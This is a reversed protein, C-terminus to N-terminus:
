EKCVEFKVPLSRRSLEKLTKTGLYSLGDANIIVALHHLSARLCIPISQPAAFGTASDGSTQLYGFMKKTFAPQM